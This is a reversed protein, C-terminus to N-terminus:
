HLPLHNIKRLLLQKKELSNAALSDATADPMVQGKPM